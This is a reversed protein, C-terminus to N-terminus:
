KTRRGVKELVIKSVFVPSGTLIAIPLADSPRIDVVAPRNGQLMRVKAHYVTTEVDYEDIIVDQVQAGLAQIIAAIAQFTLPRPDNRRRAVGLSSNFEFYGSTVYFYQEGNDDFLYLLGYPEPRDVFGVIYKLEFRAYEEDNRPCSHPQSPLTFPMQSRAHPECWTAGRLFSHSSLEAIYVDAKERCDPFQCPVDM